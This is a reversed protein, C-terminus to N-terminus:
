GPPWHLARGGLVHWHLHGVTQGGDVGQNCVVRYGSDFFALRRAVENVVLAMQGPLEATREDLSAFGDLHQKPIVLVHAPAQPHIDRFALVAETEYVRENPIQGAVLRCFLCDQMGAM